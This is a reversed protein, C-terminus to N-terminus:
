LKEIENKVEQWYELSALNAYIDDKPTSKQILLDIEDVVILACEKAINISKYYNCLGRDLTPPVFKETLQLAKEKPTM